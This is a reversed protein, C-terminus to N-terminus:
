SSLGIAAAIEDSLTSMRTRAQAKLENLDAGDPVATTLQLYAKLKPETGSPRIVVRVDATRLRIGDTLPLLDTVEDVPAGLLTDPASRRLRAMADAIQTLDSVRVSYQGTVFLGHARALEDLRDQLGAGTAALGALLDCALVAASIGDKDRVQGPDVCLGLAEEYGFVLGTGAGDGQSSM